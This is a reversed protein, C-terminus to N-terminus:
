REFTRMVRTIDGGSDTGNSPDYVILARDDRGDPGVSYAVLEMSVVAFRYTEGRLFPDHLDLSELNPPAGLESDFLQQLIRLDFRVRSVKARTSAPFIEPGILLALGVWLGFGIGVAVVIRLASKHWGKFPSPVSATSAGM